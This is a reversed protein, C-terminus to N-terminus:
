YWYGHHIVLATFAIAWAAIAIIWIKLFLPVRGSGEKLWGGYEHVPEIPKGDYHSHKGRGSLYILCVFGALAFGLLLILAARQIVILHTIQGM